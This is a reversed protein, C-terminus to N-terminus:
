ACVIISSHLTCCPPIVRMALISPNMTWALTIQRFRAQNLYTLKLNTLILPLIKLIKLLMQNIPHFKHLMLFPFSQEEGRRVKGEPNAEEEEEENLDENIKEVM